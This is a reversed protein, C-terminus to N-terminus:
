LQYLFTLSWIVHYIVMCHVYTLFYILATLAIVFEAYLAEVLGKYLFSFISGSYLMYLCWIPLSINLCEFFRSGWGIWDNNKVFLVTWWCLVLCAFSGCMVLCKECMAVPLKRWWAGSRQSFREISCFCFFLLFYTKIIM